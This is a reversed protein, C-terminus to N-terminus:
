FDKRKEFGVITQDEQMRLRLFQDKQIKYRVETGSEMYQDPRDYTDFVVDVKDDVNKKFGVSKESESLLTWDGLTVKKSVYAAKPFINSFDRMDLEGEINYVSGDKLTIRSDNFPFVPPKGL